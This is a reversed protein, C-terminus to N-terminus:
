DEDNEDYVLILETEGRYLVQTGNVFRYGLDSIYSKDVWTHCITPICYEESYSDYYCPLLQLTDDPKFVLMSERIIGYNENAYFEEYSIFSHDMYVRDNSSDDYVQKTSEIESDYMYSIYRIPKDSQWAYTDYLSNWYLSTSDDYWVLPNGHEDLLSNGFDDKFIIECPYLTVGAYEYLYDLTIFGHNVPALFDVSGDNYIYNSVDTALQTYNRAVDIISAARYLTTDLKYEYISNDTIEQVWSKPTFHSSWFGYDENYRLDYDSLTGNDDIYTALASSPTTTYGFKSIPIPTDGGDWMLSNDENYVFISIETQVNYYQTLTYDDLVIDTDYQYVFDTDSLISIFNANDKVHITGDVISDESSLIGYLNSTNDMICRYYGYISNDAKNRAFSLLSPNVKDFGSAILTPTPVDDSHHKYSNEDFAVWGLNGTHVFYVDKKNPSLYKDSTYKYAKSIHIPDNVIYRTISSSNDAIGKKSDADLVTSDIPKWQIDDLLTYSGPLTGTLKSYLLPISQVANDELYLCTCLVEDQKIAASDDSNDYNWIKNTQVGKYKYFLRNDPDVFCVRSNYHFRFTLWASKVLDFKDGEYWTSPDTHFVTNYDYGVCTCGYLVGLAYSYMAKYDLAKYIQSYELKEHSESILQKNQDNIYQITEYDDVGFKGYLKIQNDKLHYGAFSFINEIFQLDTVNNPTQVTSDYDHFIIPVIKGNDSIENFFAKMGDCPYKIYDLKYILATPYLYNVISDFVGLETYEDIHKSIYIVSPDDNESIIKELGLIFLLSPECVGPRYLTSDYYTVTGLRSTYEM